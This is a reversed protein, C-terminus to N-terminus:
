TSCPSFAAVARGPPLQPHGQGARLQPELTLLVSLGGPSLLHHLGHSVTPPSGRPGGCSLPPASLLTRRPPLVPVANGKWPQSRPSCLTPPRPLSLCRSLSLPSHSRTPKHSAGPFPPPEIQPAWAGKLAPPLIPVPVRRHSAVPAVPEESPFPLQWASFVQRSSTERRSCTGSKMCSSTTRPGGLGTSTYTSCWWRRSSLVPQQARSPVLEAELHLVFM